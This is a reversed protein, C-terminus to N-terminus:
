TSVRVGSEGVRLPLSKVTTARNSHKGRYKIVAIIFDAKENAFVLM